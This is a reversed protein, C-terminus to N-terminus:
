PDESEEPDPLRLPGFETVPVGRRCREVNARLGSLFSAHFASLRENAQAQNFRTLASTWSDCALKRDQASAAIGGLIMESWGVDTGASTEDMDAIQIDVLHKQAEIAAPYDGIDALHQAYTEEITILMIKASEDRDEIAALRKVADRASFLLDASEDVKGIRAAAAYGEAGSWGIMYLLQTDNPTEAEMTKFADHAKRLEPYAEAEREILSQASGRYYWAYARELRAIQSAREDDPWSDLFAEQADAAALLDDYEENYSQRDMVNRTLEAQAQRWKADRQGDAVRDLAAQGRAFRDLSTEADNDRYIAILGLTADIRSEALAIQPSDSEKHLDGLIAEARVLNTKADTGLGLNREVPSGQIEALRILGNATELRLDRNTNKSAALTDLYTQARAALDARASTNGPVKRLQDNLDFLLYNALNRVDQFRQAEEARAREAAFYAVTTGAFAAILLVVAASSFFTTKKHRAVFKRFAYGPGGSFSSVPRQDRWARLDQAFRDVSGYRDEPNPRTARAIIAALEPNNVDDELLRAALKGLSFIDTATTPEAGTMREPAAYGPTLSLTQLSGGESPPNIPPLNLGTPRAIGFDILKVVGEPTVMVNSPTIDRHVILNAHAFAVAACAQLLMDIRQERSAEVSEAWRLLPLGDVYEMIFYPSGDDTEGGDFLQAINPHRLQALIQRERRFRDVLRESLLGPKIIKIAATHEFDGRDRTALYVSGMGGAGIREGIRYAGLREPPPADTVHNLAGGTALTAALDASRLAQVRARLTDRGATRENLWADPDAPDTELLEEFLTIAERDLEPDTM